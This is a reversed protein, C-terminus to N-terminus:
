QACLSRDSADLLNEQESNKQYTFDQNKGAEGRVARAIYAEAEELTEVLTVPSAPPQLVFMTNVLWRIVASEIIIATGRMQAACKPRYERMFKVLIKVSSFGPSARMATTDVRMTFMNGNDLVKKMYDILQQICDRAEAPTDGAFAAFITRNDPSWRIEAM